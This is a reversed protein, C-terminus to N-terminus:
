IDLLALTSPGCSLMLADLDKGHIICLDFGFPKVDTLHDTNRYTEDLLFARRNTRCELFETCGNDSVPRPAGLQSWLDEDRYHWMSARSVSILPHLPGRTYTNPILFAVALQELVECVRKAVRYLGETSVPTPILWVEMGETYEDGEYVWAGTIKYDLLTRQAKLDRLCEYRAEHWRMLATPDMAEHNNPEKPILAPTHNPGLTNLHHEVNFHVPFLNTTNSM